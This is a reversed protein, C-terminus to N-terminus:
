TLSKTFFNSNENTKKYCFDSVEVMGIAEYTGKKEINSQIIESFMVSKQQNPFLLYGELQGSPSFSKFAYVQNSM